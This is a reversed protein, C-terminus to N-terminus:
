TSSRVRNRVYNKEKILDTDPRSFLPNALGLKGCLRAFGLHEAMVAEFRALKEPQVVRGKGFFREILEVARMTYHLTLVISVGM